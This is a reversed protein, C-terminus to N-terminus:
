HFVHPQRGRGGGMEGCYSGCCFYGKKRGGRELNENRGGKRMPVFPREGGRGGGRKVHFCGKRKERRGWARWLPAGRRGHIRDAFLIELGLGLIPMKQGRGEKGGKEDPRNTNGEGGRTTYRARLLRNAKKKEGGGAVVADDGKYRKKRKERRDEKVGVCTLLPFEGEKGRKREEGMSFM